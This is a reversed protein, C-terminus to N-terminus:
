DYLESKGRDFFYCSNFIFNLHAVDSLPSDAIQYVGKVFSTFENADVWLTRCKFAVM